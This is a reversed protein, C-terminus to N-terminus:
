PAEGVWKLASCHSCTDNMQGINFQPYIDYNNAPNYRFAEGERATWRAARLVAQRTRQDESRARRQDPTEVARSDAHRARDEERRAQGQEPAEAARSAAQRTRQDALRTQTQEPTEVARSTTHRARDEERRAQRQEPTETARFAAMRRSAATSRALSTGRQRPM